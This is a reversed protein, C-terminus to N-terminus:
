IHRGIMDVYTQRPKVGICKEVMNGDKFLIVTPITAVGYREALDQNADVDVKCVVAKDEFETALEEIVPALMRCPGCWDAWFDVLIPLKGALTEDFNSSTVHKLGGAM